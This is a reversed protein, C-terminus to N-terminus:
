VARVEFRWAIGMQTALQMLCTPCCFSYRDPAGRDGGRMVANWLDDEAYWVVEHRIGCCDCVMEDRM